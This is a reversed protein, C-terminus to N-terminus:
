TPTCSTLTTGTETKGKSWTRIQGSNKVTLKYGNAADTDKCIILASGASPASTTGNSYFTMPLMNTTYAISLNAPAEYSRLDTTSSCANGKKVTWISNSICTIYTANNQAATSRAYQLLSALENSTTQLRSNSVFSTFNPIAIASFIGLITVAIILEVLTFGKSQKSYPM